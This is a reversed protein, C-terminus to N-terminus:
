IAGANTASRINAAMAAYPVLYTSRITAEHAPTWGFVAQLVADSLTNLYEGVFIAQTNLLSLWIATLAATNQQATSYITKNLGVAGAGLTMANNLNNAIEANALDNGLNTAHLVLNANLDAGVNALYSLDHTLGVLDTHVEHVQNRGDSQVAASLVSSVINAM